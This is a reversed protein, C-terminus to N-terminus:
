PGELRDVWRPTGKDYLRPAGMRKWCDADQRRLSHPQIHSLYHHCRRTQSLRSLLAGHEEAAAVNWLLRDLPLLYLQLNEITGAYINLVSWIINACNTHGSTRDEAIYGQTTWQKSGPKHQNRAQLIRRSQCHLCSTGGFCQNVKLLSCLAIDWFLAVVKPDASFEHALLIMQQILNQVTLKLQKRGCEKVTM